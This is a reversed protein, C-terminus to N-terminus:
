SKSRLKLLVESVKDVYESNRYVGNIKYATGANYASIIDKEDTYRKKLDVLKLCGYQVGLEPDCLRILEEDFGLERCVAGMVQMLGFSISQLNKETDLSIGLKKAYNVPNYYYMWKPEFRVCWPNFSSETKAISQVLDPDLGYSLAKVSIINLANEQTM